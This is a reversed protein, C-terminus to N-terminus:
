DVKLRRELVVERTQSNSHLRSFPSAFGSEAKQLHWLQIAFTLHIQAEASLLAHGEQDVDIVNKHHTVRSVM